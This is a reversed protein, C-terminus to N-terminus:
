KSRESIINKIRNYLNPYKSFIQEISFRIIVLISSAEKSVVTATRFDQEGLLAIEGIVDGWKLVTVISNRWNESKIVHFSGSLVVYMAQPEDWQSFLTEWESIYQLQCFSSLQEQDELSLESFLEIDLFYNM